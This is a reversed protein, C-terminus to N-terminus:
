PDTRELWKVPKKDSMQYTIKDTEQEEEFFLTFKVELLGGSETSQYTATGRDYDFHGQKALTQKQVQRDIDTLANERLQELQSSVFAAHFFQQDSSLLLIAHLVFALLLFSIIM